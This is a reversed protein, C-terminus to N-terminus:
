SYFFELIAKEFQRELVFFGICNLFFRKKECMEINKACVCEYSASYLVVTSYRCFFHVQFDM